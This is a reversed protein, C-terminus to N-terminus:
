VPIHNNQIVLNIVPIYDLFDVAMYKLECVGMWWTANVTFVSPIWGASDDTSSSTFPKARVYTYFIYGNSPCKFNISFYIEAADVIPFRQVFLLKSLNGPLPNCSPHLKWMAAKITWQHLALVIAGLTLHYQTNFRHQLTQRLRCATELLLGSSGLLFGGPGVGVLLAFWIGQKPPIARVRSRLPLPADKSGSKCSTREAPTLSVEPEGSPTHSLGRIGKIWGLLTFDQVLLAEQEHQKM